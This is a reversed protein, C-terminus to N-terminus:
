WRGRGHIVHKDLVYVEAGVTNVQGRIGNLSDNGLEERVQGESVIGVTAKEGSVAGIVEWKRFAHVKKKGV